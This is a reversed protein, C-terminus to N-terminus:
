YPTPYSDGARNATPMEIYITSPPGGNAGWLVGLRLLEDLTWYLRSSGPFRTGQERAAVFWPWGNRIGQDWFTNRPIRLMDAISQAARNTGVMYRAMANLAPRTVGVDYQSVLGLLIEALEVGEPTAALVPDLTQDSQYRADLGVEFGAVGGGEPLV